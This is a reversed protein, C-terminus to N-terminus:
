RHVSQRHRQRAIQCYNIIAPIIAAPKFYFLIWHDTKAQPSIDRFKWANCQVCTGTPNAVVTANQHLWGLACHMSSGLLVALNTLTIGVSCGNCLKRSKTFPNCLSGVMVLLATVSRFRLVLLTKNLSWALSEHPM